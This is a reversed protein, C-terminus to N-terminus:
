MLEVTSSPRLTNRITTIFGRVVASSIRSMKRLTSFIALRILRPIRCLQFLWQTTM